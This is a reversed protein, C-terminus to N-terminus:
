NLQQKSPEQPITGNVLYEAIEFFAAENFDNTLLCNILIYEGESNHWVALGITVFPTENETLVVGVHRNGEISGDWVADSDTPRGWITYMVDGDEDRRSSLSAIKKGGSVDKIYNNIQLIKGAVEKQLDSLDAETRLSKRIHTYMQEAAENVSEPNDRIYELTGTNTM